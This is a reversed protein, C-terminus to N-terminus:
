ISHFFVTELSHSYLTYIELVELDWCFHLLVHGTYGSTQLALVNPRLEQASERLM